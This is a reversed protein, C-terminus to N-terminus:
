HEEMVAWAISGAMGVGLLLILWEPIDMFLKMFISLLLAIFFSFASCASHKWESKSLTYFSAIWIFALFLIGFWSDTLSNVYNYFGELGFGYSPNYYPEM